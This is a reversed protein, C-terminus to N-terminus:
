LNDCEAIPAWAHVAQCQSYNSCCPSTACVLDQMTAAGLKTLQPNRKSDWGEWSLITFDSYFTFIILM